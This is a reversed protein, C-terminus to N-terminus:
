IKTGSQFWTEFEKLVKEKETEEIVLSVIDAKKGLDKISSGVHYVNQNDIILFRGHANHHVRLDVRNDYQQNFLNFDSKFANSVNDTLIRVTLGPISEVYPELIYIIDLDGSSGHVYNDQIFISQKATQFIDRLLKRGTFTQSKDIFYQKQRPEEGQEELIRVAFERLWSLTGQVDKQSAYGDRSVDRYRTVKSQKDFERYLLSNEVLAEDIRNISRKSIQNLEEDKLLGQKGLELANDIEEIASLIPNDGDVFLNM